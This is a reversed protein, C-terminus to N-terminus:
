RFNPLNRYPAQCQPCLFMNGSVNAPRMQSGDRELCAPCFPRGKPKGDEGRAYMYGDHEVMEARSKLKDKLERIEQEREAMAERASFLLQKLEFVEEKLELESMDKNLKQLRKIGDGLETLINAM